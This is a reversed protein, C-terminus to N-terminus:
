EFTSMWHSQMERIKRLAHWNLASVRAAIRCVLPGICVSPRGIRSLTTPSLDCEDWSASQYPRMSESLILWCRVSASSRSREARQPGRPRGGAPGCTRWKRICRLATHHARLPAPSDVAATGEDESETELIYNQSYQPWRGRSVLDAITDYPTTNHNTSEAAYRGVSM